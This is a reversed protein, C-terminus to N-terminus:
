LQPSRLTPHVGRRAGKKKTHETHKDVAQAHVECGRCHRLGPEYANRDGGEDPNWDDPHTGCQQCREM